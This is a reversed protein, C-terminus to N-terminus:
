QPGGQVCGTPCVKDAVLSHAFKLGTFNSM